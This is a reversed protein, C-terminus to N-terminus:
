RRGSRPTCRRRIWSRRASASARASRTPRSPRWRRRWCNWSPEEAIDRRWLIRLGPYDDVDLPFTASEIERRGRSRGQVLLQLLGLSQGAQHAPRDRGSRDEAGAARSGADDFAMLQEFIELDKEPDDTQPLLMGLVIARVLILPKRGKWYSGLATLTQGAGAKRERQAEFSVKQAPFVAEILAPADKLAHPQLKPTQRATDM